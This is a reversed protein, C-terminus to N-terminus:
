HPRSHGRVAVVAFKDLALLKYITAYTVALMCKRFISLRNHCSNKNSRGRSRYRVITILLMQRDTHRNTWCSIEPVVCATKVLSQAHQRHGHNPGGAPHHFGLPFSCNQRKGRWHSHLTVRESFIVDRLLLVSWETAEPLHYSHM